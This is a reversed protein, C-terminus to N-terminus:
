FRLAYAYKAHKYYYSPNTITLYFNSYEKSLIKTIESISHELTAQSILEPTLKGEILSVISRKLTEYQKILKSSTALHKYYIGSLQLIGTQAQQIQESIVKSLNTIAEFNETVSEQITDFRKNTTAMSSTFHHTQMKMFKAVQRSNKTLANIHAKLINVDEMTATGFLNKSLGGVFPLLSKRTRDTLHIFPVNENIFKTTHDFEELANIQLDKIQHIFRMYSGCLKSPLTLCDAKLEDRPPQKPLIIEYTQRWYENTIVLDNVGKFIVGYNLRHVSKEIHRVKQQGNPVDGALYQSLCLMLLLVTPLGIGVFFCIFLFILPKNYLKHPDPVFQVVM